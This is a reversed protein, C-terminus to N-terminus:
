VSVWQLLVFSVVSTDIHTKNQCLLCATLRIICIEWRNRMIILGMMNDHQISCASGNAGRKPQLECLLRWHKTVRSKWTVTNIDAPLSRSFSLTDRTCTYTHATSRRADRCYQTVLAAELQLVLHNEAYPQQGEARLQALLQAAVVYNRSEGVNQLLRDFLLDGADDEGSEPYACWWLCKICPWSLNLTKILQPITKLFATTFCLSASTPYYHLLSCLVPLRGSHAPKVCVCM